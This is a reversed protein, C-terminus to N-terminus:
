GQILGSFTGTGSVVSEVQRQSESFNRSPVSKLATPPLSLLPNSYETLESL